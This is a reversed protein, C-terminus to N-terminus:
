EEDAADSTYLLCCAVMTLAAGELTQQLQSFLNSPSPDVCTKLKEEATKWRVQWTRFAQIVNAAEGEGSFKVPVYKSVDVLILLTAASTSPVTSPTEAKVKLRRVEVALKSFSTYLDDVRKQATFHISPRYWFKRIEAASNELPDRKRRWALLLAESEGLLKAAQEKELATESDHVLKNGEQLLDSAIKMHDNYSEVARTLDAYNKMGEVLADEIADEREVLDAIDQFDNALEQRLKAALTAQKRARRAAAAAESTLPTSAIKKADQVGPGAQAPPAQGQINGAQNNIIPQALLDDEQNGQVNNVNSNAQM